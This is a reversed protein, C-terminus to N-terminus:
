RRGHISSCLLSNNMGTSLMHVKLNYLRYFIIELVSCVIMAITVTIVLTNSTSISAEEQQKAGITRALLEHRQKMKYDTFLMANTLVLCVVSLATM